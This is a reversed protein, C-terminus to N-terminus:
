LQIQVLDLGSPEPLGLEEFSPPVVDFPQNYQLNVGLETARVRALDANHKFVGVNQKNLCLMMFSQDVKGRMDTTPVMTIREVGLRHADEVMKTMEHVNLLNINNFINTKHKGDYQDRIRLYDAIRTMVLDYGGPLRRIKEYVSSSAADISFTLESNYVSGFFKHINQESFCTVNTSTTFKIRDKYRPFDVLDFIRFIADKWFPEALGLISFGRIFQMLPKVKICIEDMRDVQREVNWNRGCMICAPNDDNPHEGGINCHTNPLCVKLHTPAKFGEHVKFTKPSREATLFPCTNWSKCVPHLNGTQTVQRIEYSDRWIKFIDRGDFVNGIKEYQHCCMSVDGVADVILRTFPLDCFSTFAEFTPQYKLM